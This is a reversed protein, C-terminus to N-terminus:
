PAGSNNVGRLVHESAGADRERAGGPDPGRGARRLAEQRGAGTLDGADARMWSRQARAQWRSKRELRKTIVDLGELQAVAEFDALAKAHWGYFAPVRAPETNWREAFNEGITTENAM